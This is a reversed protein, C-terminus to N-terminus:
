LSVAIRDVVREGLGVSSGILLALIVTGAGSPGGISAGIVLCSFEIAMRVRPEPWGNPEAFSTTLLETPGAGLESKMISAAGTGIAAIGILQVVLQVVLLDPREVNDLGSVTLDIVFGAIMPAAVTGFSPRRGMIGSILNMAAFMTWCTLTLSLGTRASVGVVLVDVPGPGLGNWILIAVFTGIVSSGGVLLLFRVVLSHSTETRGNSTTCHPVPRSRNTTRTTTNGAHVGGSSPTRDDDNCHDKMQRSTIFVVTFSRAGLHMFRM